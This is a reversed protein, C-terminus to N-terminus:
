NGAIATNYAAVDDKLESLVKTWDPSWIEVGELLGNLTKFNEDDPKIDNLVPFGKAVSSVDKQAADSLLFDILKKGNETDPGGKVLAVYYPLAFATKKGDPGVPFFIKINPNDASQALNMQMDGNAVYLEGKNVLATLKGTSSSPGVNNVQLKKFYDLGATGAAAGAAAGTSLGAAYVSQIAQASARPDGALAVQNAYDSKQLDTWSKPPNHVLDDNVLFALVGYYDGYCYGDADKASDPIEDWTSVKYPQILKQEKAQPGFSLGVDVMDPAQPGTNGKNAKIAQIEDASGADPNLENIKMWPYKAKFAEFTGGWGCWDHPLAIPSFTGEKKAAAILDDMSGASAFVTGSPLAAATFALIRGTSRYM